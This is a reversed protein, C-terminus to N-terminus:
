GKILLDSLKTVEYDKIDNVECIYDGVYLGKIHENKVTEYFVHVVNMLGRISKYDKVLLYNEKETPDFPVLFPIVDEEMNGEFRVGLMNGTNPNHLVYLDKM